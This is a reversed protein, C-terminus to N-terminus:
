GRALVIGSVHTFGNKKLVRAAEELTSLTTTVDDVLLFHKQKLEEGELSSTLLPRHHYNEAIIFADKLNAIREKRHLVAQQRTNKSRKLVHLVPLLLELQIREALVEAQNFGRWAKRKPHLPIPVLVTHHLDIKNERILQVLLSGLQGALDQSYHYKFQKIAKELIKNERYHCAVLLGDLSSAQKCKESHVKGQTSPKKCVPCVQSRNFRVSRTCSDCLFSGERGCGLCKEPFIYDLLTHFWRLM